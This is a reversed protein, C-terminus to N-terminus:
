VILEFAHLFSADDLQFIPSVLDDVLELIHPGARPISFVGLQVEVCKRFLGEIHYIDNHSLEIRLSTPLSLVFHSGGCTEKNLLDM